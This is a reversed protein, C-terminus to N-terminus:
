MHLVRQRSGNNDISMPSVVYFHCIFVCRILSSGDLRCVDSVVVIHVLSPPLTSDDQVLEDNGKNGSYSVMGRVLRLSEEGHFRRALFTPFIQAPCFM